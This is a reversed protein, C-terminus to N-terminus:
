ESGQWSKSIYIWPSDQPFDPSPFLALIHHTSSEGFEVGKGLLEQRFRGCGIGVTTKDAKSCSQHAMPLFM